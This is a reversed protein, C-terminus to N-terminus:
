RNVLVQCIGEMGSENRIMCAFSHPCDRDDRCRIACMGFEDLESFRVCSQDGPCELDCGCNMGMARTEFIPVCRNYEDCTFGDECDNGEPMCEPEDFAQCTHLVAMASPSLMCRYAAPCDRSSLCHVQCTHSWDCIAGSDACGCDAICSQGIPAGMIEPCELCEPCATVTFSRPEQPGDTTLEQQVNWLGQILPSIMFNYPAAPASNPTPRDGGWIGSHLTIFGANPQLFYRMGGLEAVPFPVGGAMMGVPILASNGEPIDPLAEHIYMQSMPYYRWSQGCYGHEFWPLDGLSSTFVEEALYLVAGLSVDIDMCQIGEEPRPQDGAFAVPGVIDGYRQMVGQTVDQAPLGVRYCFRVRYDGTPADMKDRCAVMTDAGYPCRGDRYYTGDWLLEVSEGPLVQMVEEPLAECAIPACDTCNTTCGADMHVPDGDSNYLTFGHHYDVGPWLNQVWAANPGTNTMVVKVGRKTPLDQDTADNDATDTDLSDGDVITDSDMDGDGDPGIHLTETECACLIIALAMICYLIAKM